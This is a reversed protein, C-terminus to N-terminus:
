IHKILKLEIDYENKLLECWGYVVADCEDLEILQRSYQELFKMDKQEMVFMTVEGQFKHKIAVEAAVINALTYVFIAPSAGEPLHKDVIEQHNLDADLSGSRNALIVAVRKSEYPLEIDKLLKCSTVYGAKALNNMKYFKLNADALAKYERKLVDAASEGGLNRMEVFGCEVVDRVCQGRKLSKLAKEKSLIIAANTGGFGSACKLTHNIELDRHVASVNLKFPVGSEKYGKVGLIKSRLMQEITINIEIVGSAGLTHGIYPKLSNCPSATLEALSIAKSEMDDNFPTATGHANILGIDGRDVGSLQMASDIAFFLGDGTRSPGSIHNADDSMGYGSVVIHEGDRNPECSLLIAGCGEGLTLGDRSKDYPKCVEPSISKFSNFGTVVFESIIDVGVIFARDVEANEIMRAGIAAASVGSVCANSVITVAGKYGFFSAVNDGMRWLYSREFDSNITDINGKTTSIILATRDCDINVGSQISISHLALISLQEAFTYEELGKTDLRERNIRCLPTGDDFSSLATEYREMAGFCEKLNNGLSCIVERASCYAVRVERDM